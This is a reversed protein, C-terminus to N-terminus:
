PSVPGGLKLCNEPFVTPGTALMRQYFVQNRMVLKVYSRTEEYPIEEIFEVPDPRARHKLWGRVADANANYSAVAPIWTGKWRDFLGRLEWAGLRVSTEPEFLSEAGNFPIGHRRAHVQANRPLLQTLGYAEAHSRARPNFASEQRMIAYLLEPPVGADRSAREVEAVYPKPFLFEPHAQLLRDRTEAPLTSMLAFLPLYQGARAYATSMRLWADNSARNNRQFENQISLLVRETGDRVELAILWEAVLSPAIPFEPSSTLTLATSERVSALPPLTEGLDRSVLLGYFGLPDLRQAERLAADRDPGRPLDRAAWYTARFRDAPEKADNALEKFAIVAEARKDAKHLVWGRAWRIKDKLGGVAVRENLALTFYGEAAALDGAEEEMRGLLFYLEEFSVLGALDRRTENLAKQGLDRRSETWVTRAFLLRAELLRRATGPDRRHKRFDQRAFNVLETTAALMENKNQSSKWTQRISKLIAFREDNRLAPDQLRKRELMVARSFERWKRYDGAIAAYDKKEPNPKLRPSNKWLRGRADETLAADGSNEALGVADMLNLERQRDDKEIAAKEWLHNVQEPLSLRDWEADRAKLADEAFWKTAEAGRPAPLDDTYPCIQHARLLALDSLPFLADLGLDRFAPCAIEKRGQQQAEDAAKFKKFWAANKLTPEKALQEATPPLLIPDIRTDRRLSHACGFIFSFAAFALFRQIM